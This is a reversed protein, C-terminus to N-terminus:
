REFHSFDKWIFKQKKIFKFLFYMKREMIVFQLKCYNIFFKAM